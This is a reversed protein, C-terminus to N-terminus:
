RGSQYHMSLYYNFAFRFKFSFLRFPPQIHEPRPLKKKEFAVSPPLPRIPLVATITTDTLSKRLTNRM